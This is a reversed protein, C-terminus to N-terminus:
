ANKLEKERQEGFLIDIVRRSANADDLYNYKKNFKVYKEDRSFTGDTLKRIQSALSAEERLIPGPLEAIDLNFGRIDEAYEDLDYMYFLMPRGLNAFDFFVSSYDTILLDTITYLPTIDDHGSVDYVFGRYREFDFQNAVFYHARFLVVYDEGLEGRLRDFDLHTDYVYGTGDHMNDRFTPAYLIITKEEPIGLERKIEAAYDDSYSFLLDNRPYGTEILINEKGLEKLNFASTFVGTCFASPSIFYDYRVVDIDNRWKIEELTNNVNGEEAEIDCRLRKLPTGHWTQLFVQGERKVIRNDLNSNTIIYKARACIDFYEKSKMQVIEARKLAEFESAKDTDIFAWILRYDDFEPSSIMREYIAKPNCGYQRGMFTEFLVMKEDLEIGRTKRIYKNEKYAGYHKRVFMRLKHHKKLYNRIHKKLTEM